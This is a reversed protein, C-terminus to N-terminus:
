FRIQAEVDSIKKDISTKLVDLVDAIVASNSTTFENGRSDSIRLTDRSGDTSLKFAKLKKKTEQLTEHKEVLSSLQNVKLIRDEVPPLDAAEKTKQNVDTSIPSVKATNTPVDKSADATGNTPLVNKTSM